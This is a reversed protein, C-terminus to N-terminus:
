VGRNQGWGFQSEAVFDALDSRLRERWDELRYGDVDGQVVLDRFQEGVVTLSLVISGEHLDPDLEVSIESVEDDKFVARVAPVVIESLADSLSIVRVISRSAPREM